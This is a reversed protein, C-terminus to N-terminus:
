FLPGPTALQPHTHHTDTHHTDTHPTPVAVVPSDAHSLCHHSVSGHLARRLGTHERTGLVLLRAGHSREVLVPGPPGEAIDLTWPVHTADPGLTDHVLRTARARADAAAAQRITTNGTAAAAADLPTLQWAHVVRLPLTTAHSQDAAWRLAAAASPSDDLGVVIAGTTPTTPPTPTHTTM